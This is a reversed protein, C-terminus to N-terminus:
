NDAAGDGDTDWKYRHSENPKPNEKEQNDPKGDGDADGNGNLDLALAGNRQVIEFRMANPPFGGPCTTALDLTISCSPSTAGAFTASYTWNVVRRQKKASCPSSITIAGPMSEGVPQNAGAWTASLTPTITASCSSTATPACTIDLFMDLNFTVVRQGLANQGVTLKGPVVQVVACNACTCTSAAVLFQGGIWCSGWASTAFTYGDFVASQAYLTEGFLMPDNPIHMAYPATGNPQVLAMATSDMSTGLWCNPAGFESLEYPLWGLPFARDTWGIVFAGLSNAAAGQVELGFTSGLQPLSTAVLQPAPQTPTTCANGTVLFEGPAYAVNPNAPVFSVEVVVGHNQTVAPAGTPYGTSVYARSCLSGASQVDLQLNTGTFPQVPIDTEINLDGSTPDYAFPASFPIHILWPCPGPSPSAAQWQVPGQFVTMRDIGEYTSLPQGATVQSQDLPCTSLQVTGGIPYVSPQSATNQNPRYRLGTILIPYNVGQATFNSSDYLNCIRLGNGGRGWPFANSTDGEATATGYPITIASQATAAAGLVTLLMTPALLERPLFRKTRSM